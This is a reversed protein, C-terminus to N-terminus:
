LPTPCPLRSSFRWRAEEDEPDFIVVGVMGAPTRSSDYMADTYVVVPRRRHRKRGFFFRRPPLLPLLQIFFRLAEKVFEPLPEGDDRRGSRHQWARLAALPARGVRGCAGSSTTYECKGCITATLGSSMRDSSLISRMALVIKRVRGPKPKLAVSGSVFDSLDALVGLFTNATAFDKDKEAAFPTAMLSALDHLLKKGSSGSYSPECTDVDDFYGACCVGFWRRAIWCMLQSHRNFSLVASKLGFNHGYMTFYRVDGANTDWIAVVSYEPHACRLQRYALAIDDTAHVLPVRRDGFIDAFLHAVLIPFTPDESAITEHVGLMENTRSTKANDCLRTRVSGDDKM